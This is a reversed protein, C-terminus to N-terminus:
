DYVSCQSCSVVYPLDNPHCCLNCTYSMNRDIVKRQYEQKCGKGWISICHVQLANATGSCHLVETCQLVELTCISCPLCLASGPFWMCTFCLASWPLTCHVQYHLAICKLLPTDNFHVSTHVKACQFHAASRDPCNAKHNSICHCFIQCSDCFGRCFLIFARHISMTWNNAVLTLTKESKSCFTTKEMLM